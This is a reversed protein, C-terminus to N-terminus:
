KETKLYLVFAFNKNRVHTEFFPDSSFNLWTVRYLQSVIFASCVLQREATNYM